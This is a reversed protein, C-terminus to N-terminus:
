CANETNTCNVVCGVATSERRSLAWFWHNHVHAWPLHDFSGVIRPKARFATRRVVGRTRQIRAKDIRGRQNGQYVFEHRKVHNFQPLNQVQRSPVNFEFGNTKQVEFIANAQERDAAAVYIEAGPENDAFLLYLGIAAILNSKGNKRPLFVFSTRYQRLGDSVVPESCSRSTNV